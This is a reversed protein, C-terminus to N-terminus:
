PAGGGLLLAVALSCAAVGALSAAALLALWFAPWSHLGYAARIAQYRAALVWAWVGLAGFGLPPLLPLLLLACPAEALALCGLAPALPKRSGNIRVLTNTALGFALWDLLLGLPVWALRLLGLPPTPEQWRALLWLGQWGSPVHPLWTSLGSRRLLPVGPLERALVRQVQALDPSAAWHLTAAVVGALGLAAGLALVLWLGDRGSRPREKMQLYAEGDFLLARLALSVPAAAEDRM